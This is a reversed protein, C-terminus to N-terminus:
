RTEADLRTWNEWVFPISYTLRHTAALRDQLLRRRHKAHPVIEHFQIQVDRVRAILGTTILADLLEYEGGEINIKMLDVSELGLERWIEALARIPLSESAAGKSRQYVSTSDGQAYLLETRSRAGLGFPYVTVAPTHSFRSEIQQAFAPWPEFIMIKCGYRGFIDSAWQGEYGGVDLVTSDSTLPYDLRLTADGNLAVWARVRREHATPLKRRRFSGARSRLASLL